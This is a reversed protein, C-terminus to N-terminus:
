EDMPLQTTLLVATAGVVALAFALEWAVSKRMDGWEGTSRLKPTARWWNHFGLAVVVLFLVVKFSLLRGYGSRWLDSPTTLRLGASLVGTVAVVPACTLAVPSFARLRRLFVSAGERSPSTVLALCTLSGLWAGAALVHLGDAGISVIRPHHSIAHGAFAPTFALAIVPLSVLIGLPSGEVPAAIRFRSAVLAVIEIATLILQAMWALGWSRRLLFRADPLLPDPPLNFTLLQVTFAGASGVLMTLCAILGLRFVRAHAGLDAHEIVAWRTVWTGIMVMLSTFILANSLALLSDLTV